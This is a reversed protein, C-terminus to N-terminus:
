KKSWYKGVCAREQLALHHNTSFVIDGSTSGQQTMLNTLSQLPTAQRRTPINRIGYPTVAPKGSRVIVTLRLVSNNGLHSDFTLRKYGCDSHLEGVIVTYLLKGM